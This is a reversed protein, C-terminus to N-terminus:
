GREAGDPTGRAQLSAPHMTTQKLAQGAAKQLDMRESAQGLLRRKAHSSLVPVRSLHPCLVEGVRFYFHPLRLGM